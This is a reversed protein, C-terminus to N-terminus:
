RFVADIAQHLLREQADDDLLKWAAAFDVFRMRQEPTMEDFVSLLSQYTLLTPSRTPTPSETSFTNRREPPPLPPRPIPPLKNSV